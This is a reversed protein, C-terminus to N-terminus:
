MDSLTFLEAEDGIYAPPKMEAMIIHFVTALPFEAGRSIVFKVRGGFELM